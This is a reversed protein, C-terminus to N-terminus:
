IRGVSSGSVIELTRNGDQVPIGGLSLSSLAPHAALNELTEETVGTGDVSLTQLSSMEALASVDKM